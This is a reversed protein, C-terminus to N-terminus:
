LFDIMGRSERRRNKMLDVFICDVMFLQPVGLVSGQWMGMKGCVHDSESYKSQSVIAAKILAFCKRM